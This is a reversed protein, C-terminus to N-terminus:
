QFFLGDLLGKAYWDHPYDSRIMKAIVVANQVALRQNPEYTGSSLVRSRILEKEEKTIANAATKKWYKGIGHKLHIVSLYRVEVPLSLDIYASQLLSHFGPSKEWNQLQQSGTMVQQQDSSSASQLVNYLTRSNLPNAEAPVEISFKM